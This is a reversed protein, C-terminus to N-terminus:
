RNNYAEQDLLWTLRGYIPVIYSAPYNLSSQSKEFINEVITQKRKGTVLFTVVDANNIIRGTLTIRKQLTVPHLAVDCIKDSNLLEYHGPFISAIHGDEGLGLLILDFLPIRDRSRTYYSVEESYRLAEKEPDDEGKIRHINSAPIKIRSLFERRAVGYNSEMNDPSVCREDGWFFHVSKWSSSKSFKESLVKFLIEPTSGGSLAVTFIQKRSASENIMNIFELAFEKALELPSDYIKVINELIKCNAIYGMM